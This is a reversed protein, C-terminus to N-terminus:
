VCVVLKHAGEHGILLEIVGDLCVAVRVVLEGLLCVHVSTHSVLGANREKRKKEKGTKLELGSAGAKREEKERGRETRIQSSVDNEADGGRITCLFFTTKVSPGRATIVCFAWSSRAVTDAM